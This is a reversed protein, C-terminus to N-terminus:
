YLIPPYNSIAFLISATLAMLVLFISIYSYIIRKDITHLDIVNEEKKLLNKNYVNINKM